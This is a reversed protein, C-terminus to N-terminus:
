ECEQLLWQKMGDICVEELPYNMGPFTEDCWEQKPCFGCAYETGNNENFIFKAMEDVSMQKIREYNNM